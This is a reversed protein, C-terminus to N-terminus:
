RHRRRVLAVEDPEDFLAELDAATPRKSPDKDLLQLALEDLEPGIRENFESPPVVEDNRHRAAIALASAGDFPVRGCLMRYFCVGLAYVDAAGSLSEGQSREPALYHAVEPQVDALALGAAAFAAAM